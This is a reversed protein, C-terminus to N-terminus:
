PGRYGIVKGNQIIATPDRSVPTGHESRATRNQVTEICARSEHATPCAPAVPGSSFQCASTLLIACIGTHILAKRM